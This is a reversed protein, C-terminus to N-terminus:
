IVGFLEDDIKQRRVDNAKLKAQLDAIYETPKLQQNTSKPQAKGQSALKARQNALKQKLPTTETSSREKEPLNPSKSQQGGKRGKNKKGAATQSSGGKSFLARRTPSSTKRLPIGSRRRPSKPSRPVSHSSPSSNATKLPTPPSSSGTPDTSVVSSHSSMVLFNSDSFDDVNLWNEDMDNVPQATGTEAVIQRNVFDLMAQFTGPDEGEQGNEALREIGSIVSSRETVESLADMKDVLKVNARNVTKESWKSLEVQSRSHSEETRGGEYTHAINVAHARRQSSSADRTFLMDVSDKQGPSVSAAHDVTALREVQDMKNPRQTDLSPREPDLYEYSLRGPSGGYRYHSIPPSPHNSTCSMNLPNTSPSTYPSTPLSSIRRSTSQHPHPDLVAQSGFMAREYGSLKAKLRAIESEKIVMAENTANIVEKSATLDAELGAVQKTTEHLAQNAAQEAEKLQAIQLRHSSDLQDHSALLQAHSQQLESVEDEKQDVEADRLKAIQQLESTYQAQLALEQARTAGVEEALRGLDQDKRRCMELADQLESTLNDQNRQAQALERQLETINVHAQQTQERSLRLQQGQDLYERKSEQLDESLEEVRKEIEKIASSKLTIEDTQRQLSQELDQVLLRKTHNEKTKKELDEELGFVQQKSQKLQYQAKNLSSELELIEREMESQREKVTVDLQSVLASRQLLERQSTRLALDIEAVDREKSRMEDQSKRLSENLEQVREQKLKNEAKSRQLLRHLEGLQTAAARLDEQAQQLETDLHRCHEKSAKSEEQTRELVEELEKVTSQAEELQVKNAHLEKELQSTKEAQSDRDQRTGRLMEELDTVKSRSQVLESHSSSLEQKYQALQHNREELDMCAQHLKKEMLQAEQASTSRLQSLEKSLNSVQQELQAERDELESMRETSQQLMQQRERLAQELDAVKIGREETEVTAKKWREELDAIERDKFAREQHHKKNVEELQTIYMNLEQKCVELASELHALRLTGEDATSQLTNWLKQNEVDKNVLEKQSEALNNKIKMLQEEKQSAERQLKTRDGQLSLMEQSQQEVKRQMLDLQHHLEQCQERNVRKTEEMRSSQLEDSSAKKLLENKTDALQTSTVDLERQLQDIKAVHVSFTSTKDELQTELASLKGKAKKLEKELNIVRSSKEQIETHLHTLQDDRLLMRSQLSSQGSETDALKQKLRSNENTVKTAESKLCGIVKELELAKREELKSKEMLVALQARLSTPSRSTSVGQVSSLSPQHDPFQSSRFHQIEVEKMALQYRLESVITQSNTSTIEMDTEFGSDRTPGASQASVLDNFSQRESSNGGKYGERAASKAVMGELKQLQERSNEIDGQCETLRESQRATLETLEKNERDRTLLASELDQIRTVHEQAERRSGSLATETQSLRNNSERLTRIEDRADQLDEELSTARELLEERERDCHELSGRLHEESAALMILQAQTDSRYNHLEESLEELKRATENRQMEMRDRLKQEELLESRIKKMDQRHSQIFSEKDSLQRGSEDLSEEALRLASGNVKLETKLSDCKKKLSAVTSRSGDMEIGLMKLQGKSLRLEYQSSEIRNQLSHNEGVLISNDERIAKLKKRLHRNEAADHDLASAGMLSTSSPQASIDQESEYKEKRSSQRTTSSRSNRSSKRSYDSRDSRFSSTSSALRDPTLDDLTLAPVQDDEEPVGNYEFDDLYRDHDRGPTQLLQLNHETRILKRRLDAVNKLLLDEDSSTQAM